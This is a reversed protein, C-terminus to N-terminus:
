EEPKQALIDDGNRCVTVTNNGRGTSAVVCTDGRPLIGASYTGPHINGWPLTSRADGEINCATSSIVPLVAFRFALPTSAHADPAEM